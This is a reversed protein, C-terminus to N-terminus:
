RGSKAVRDWNQWVVVSEAGPKRVPQLIAFRGGDGHVGFQPTWNFALSVYTSPRTFLRVPTGLTPAEGLEIPVEMLDEGRVYYLRDGRANWRPWLGADPSVQWRGEGSPFRRLFVQHRGIDGGVAEVYAVYRGDPSIRPAYVIRGGTPLDVLPADRAPRGYALSSMFFEGIRALVVLSEDPTFVPMGFGGVQLTDLGGSGDGNRVAVSWSRGPPRPMRPTVQYIVRRGSPSWSSIAEFAPDFTLRSRTGRTADFVWLDGGSGETLSAVVRRGDASLDFMGSFNPAAPGITDVFAGNRDVWALQLEPNRRELAVLTGDGAVSPATGAAAVLFPPGTTELRSLSFPLAWVGVPESMRDFLVHGTPSYVPSGLHQGRLELLVKRRGDRLVCIRDPVGGARHSVFLIGRDGPLVSPQHHDTEELTSDPALLTRAEGGGDPVTFLGTEIAHSAVITGDERWAAGGGQPFARETRAVVQRSGDALSIKEINSEVLLGIWKSDPSWFVLEMDRGELLRRPELQNLAQIWLETGSAYAVVRGDPSIALSRIPRLTPNALAFRRPVSSAPSRSASPRALWGLLAGLALVAAVGLVLGARGFRGPFRPAAPRPALEAAPEGGVLGELVIRAEGIDRLRQRPDRELCRRLLAVLRPPTAAPLRDWPLDARLVSALTDTVTEGAFLQRGTLLEFLVVGFAWIDARRDVTRGRAQEPSMYAATGLIVDAGTMRASITPSEAPAGSAGPGDEAAVARALGFDLLKVRGNEDVQVNQPKLDRHVIGREHAVELADAMQLGIALLDAMPMPGSALRVALTEGPVFEMVLFRVDGASELGHITAIHPHSLAALLRAERELRALREPDRALPEPLLKIAVPRALTTDLAKWVVGMGGQGLRADLRYRGLRAGPELSL